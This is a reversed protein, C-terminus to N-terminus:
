AKLRDPFLLRFQSVKPEIVFICYGQEPNDKYFNQHYDEAPYFKTFAEVQTVIPSSWVGAMESMVEHAIREQQPTHYFVASRYQPGIDNGQRNLTTPDHMMFFIRLIDGYTIVDPDFTINVVEAHGTTGLSVAEYTPNDVHGGTYGSVVSEVGKMDQFVAEICWFCGGGLTAIETAMM